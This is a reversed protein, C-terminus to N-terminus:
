STNVLSLIVAESPPIKGEVIRRYAVQIAEPTEARQIKIWDLDIAADVFAALAADSRKDMEERGWSALLENIVAPAFFMELGPSLRRAAWTKMTQPAVMDIFM